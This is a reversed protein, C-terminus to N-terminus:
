REEGVINVKVGGYGKLVQAAARHHGDLLLHEGNKMRIAEPLRGLNPQKSIYMEVGSLKVEPQSAKLSSAKVAVAKEIKDDPLMSFDDPLDQFGNKGFIKQVSIKGDKALGKAKETAAAKRDGSAATRGGAGEGGENILVHNGNITVWGDAIPAPNAGPKATPDAIVTPPPLPLGTNPDIEGPPASKAEDILKQAEDIMEASINTFQGTITGVHRLERMATARDILDETYAQVIAEVMGKGTTAKETASMQKLPNFEFDMDDEPPREFLSVYLIDILRQLGLRLRSEQKQLIGEDYMRMDSEGTANMGAPSQGLLRVLPIETAGSIQQAFQTLIGELGSFTYTSAQFEDNKDLLTIGENSQLKGMLAFMKILNEEAVGGQALIERLGEVGVTRLHAKTVLQAVGATATDFPLLRDFMREVISEGWFEEKMAENWPLEVGIQRIVRSHHVTLGLRTINYYEPLGADIGNVIKYVSSPNINWRDFVRLGKFQGKKITKIDLPSALDQGEIVIIAAGGGYLRGWKITTTLAQWLGMRTLSRQMKVADEPDIGSLTIGARTMDEAIADVARGVIWSGRYMADLQPYNRTLSSFQYTAGAQVTSGAGIKLLLNQFGDSVKVSNTPAPASDRVQAAAARRQHRNM